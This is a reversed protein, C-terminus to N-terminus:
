QRKEHKEAAKKMHDRHRKSAPGNAAEWGYVAPVTVSVEIAVQKLTLGARLRYLLAEEGEDPPLFNAAQEVSLCGIRKAVEAELAGCRLRGAEVDRVVNPSVGAQEAWENVTMGARRRSLAAVEHPKLEIMTGM